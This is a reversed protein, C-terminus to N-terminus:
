DGAVAPSSYIYALTEFSWKLKGAPTIAYLHHDLSGVYVTGDLGIAPSSWIEGETRFSWKLIGASPPAMPSRGPPQAYHHFMPWHPLLGGSMGPGVFRPDAPPETGTPCGPQGPACAPVRPEDACALTFTAALVALLGLRVM